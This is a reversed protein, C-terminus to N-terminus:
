IYKNFSWPSAIHLQNNSTFEHSDALHFSFVTGIFIDPRYVYWAQDANKYVLEQIYQRGGVFLKCNKLLNALQNDQQERFYGNQVFGSKLGGM